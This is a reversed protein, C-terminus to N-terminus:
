LVLIPASSDGDCSSDRNGPLFHWSIQSNDRAPPTQALPPQNREHKTNPIENYHNQQDHRRPETRGLQRPKGSRRSRRTFEHVERGISQKKRLRATTRKVILDCRTVRPFASFFTLGTTKVMKSNTPVFSATMTIQHSPTGGNRFSEPLITTKATAVAPIGDGGAHGRVKPVM